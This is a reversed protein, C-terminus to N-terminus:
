TPRALAQREFLFLFDRVQKSCSGGMGLENVELRVQKTLFLPKQYSVDRGPTM